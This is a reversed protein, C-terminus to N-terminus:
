QEEKMESIFKLRKQAEERIEEEKLDYQQLDYDKKMEDVTSKMLKIALGAILRKKLEEVQLFSAAQFIKLFYDDGRAMIKEVLLADGEDLVYKLEQNSKLPLEIKSVDKDKHLQM